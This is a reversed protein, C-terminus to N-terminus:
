EKNQYSNFRFVEQPEVRSRRRPRQGDPYGLVLFAVVVLDEPLDLEKQVLDQPFWGVITAGLGRDVASLAMSQIAIGLDVDAWNMRDPGLLTNQSGRPNRVPHRVVAILGGADKVFANIGHEQSHLLEGLRQIKEKDDVGIFMWRQANCASPSIRGDEMIEQLLQRSVLKDQFTRCSYREQLVQQFNM